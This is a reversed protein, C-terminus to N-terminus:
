RNFEDPLDSVQLNSGLEATVANILVLPLIVNMQSEPCHGVRRM